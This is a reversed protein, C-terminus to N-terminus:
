RTFVFPFNRDNLIQMTPNIIIVFVFEQSVDSMSVFIEKM